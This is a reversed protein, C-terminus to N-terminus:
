NAPRHTKFGNGVKFQKVMCMQYKRQYFIILFIKKKTNHPM